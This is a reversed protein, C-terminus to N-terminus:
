LLREPAVKTKAGPFSSLLSAAASEDMPRSFFFGQGQRCKMAQLKKLQETTEIGEAIVEMGLNNGLTLITEIIKPQEQNFFLKRIFSRDIKLTDIPLNQLYNLSSYGTGFDDLSIHIGFAKLKLLVEVISSTQEMLVTETIELELNDPKIGSEKIVTTVMDTFGPDKLQVPSINVALRLPPVGNDLWTKLHGCATRLVWEGMPLILGTDEALPIFDSPAILGQHPHQWRLLAEMGVIRSDKLSVIPQYHIHFEDRELAARLDAELRVLAVARLRMAPSFVECRGRGLAKAQYMTIDADRLLDEAHLYESSGLAIGISPTSVLEAESVRFPEMFAKQIREAIAKANEENKIDEFLMVFEDGGLRATTDGPRACKELRRATEVLVADGALHGLSDNIMKFRDLDLFFVACTFDPVRRTRRLANNLRDMFLARNPLGTLGDYFADHQLQEEAFKRASIDTHSGAMRYAIGTEERVAIGRSLIWRYSGDKHRMRHENIFHANLGEIHSNIEVKVQESDDPHIRNLWEEIGTGIEEEKYGLLGKWRSSFHVEKTLLNWDWLGDNAALSALAYREESERLAKETRKRETIDRVINLAENEGSQITRIEWDRLAGQIAVSCELLQVSGTQLTKHVQGMLQHALQSPLFEFINPHDGENVPPLIHDLSNRSELLAGDSSIRLMGDPIAGLLARSKSEARYVDDFAKSARLMYRVRYGLLLWNIPKTIFDTAGVQYAHHISGTDDLGTMMCIPIREQGPSRRIQECTSFGDMEPMMVDLLILDPKLPSLLSLAEVGNEAEEVRYGEKELAAHALMRMVTDDDVVLILPANGEPRKKM